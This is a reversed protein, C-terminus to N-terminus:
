GRGESVYEAALPGDDSLKIPEPLRPRKGNWSARGQAMLRAIGDPVGAPIVKAVEKGRRTITLVEGQEVRSILASASNKLERIGVRGM